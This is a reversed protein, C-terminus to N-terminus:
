YVSFTEAWRSQIGAEHRAEESQLFEFLDRLPGPNAQEALYRYHEFAVREVGEAYDLIADEAAESPFEPMAVYADFREQTAPVPVRQERVAELDTDASLGQLLEFHKREEEALELVLSRAEPHVRDAVNTYFRHANQEFAMASRLADELTMSPSMPIRPDSKAEQPMPCRHSQDQTALRVGDRQRHDFADPRACPEDISALCPRQRGMGLRWAPKASTSSAAILPVISDDAASLTFLASHDRPLATTDRRRARGM